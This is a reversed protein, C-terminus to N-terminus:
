EDECREPTYPPHKCGGNNEDEDRDLQTSRRRLWLAIPIWLVAPIAISLAMFLAPEQLQRGVDGLWAFPVAFALSGLASAAVFRGFPMGSMGALCYVAEALMPVPRAAAVALAGWRSFFRRTRELDKPGAIRMAAPRGLWRCLGYAALSSALCVVAGALSGLLTGYILGYCNMVASSPVPLVLDAMMLGLGAPVAWAQHATLFDITAQPALWDARGLLLFGALIVAFVLLVLGALRM